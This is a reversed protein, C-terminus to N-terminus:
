WQAVVRASLGGPPAQDRWDDPLNVVLPADVQLTGAALSGTIATPAQVSLAGSVILEGALAVGDAPTTPGAVICADGLVVLTLRPALPPLPRSGTIRLPGDAAHEVVVLGGGSAPGALTTLDLSEDQSPAQPACSRSNLDALTTAAPLATCASPPTGGVCADTDADDSGVQAHEESEGRYIRGGAHVAADPWLDGHAGDAPPAGSPSGGDAPPSFTINERGRVDSGAYVGCGRVTTEAQCTLRGAVSVGCPLRTPRIEAVAHVAAQAAGHTGCVEVDYTLPWGAGPPRLTLAVVYAGEGALSASYSSHVLPDSGGALGWGLRDLVDALGTDAAARALESRRDAGAVGASAVAVTVITAAAVAAMAGIVMVALLAFGPRRGHRWSVPSRPRTM